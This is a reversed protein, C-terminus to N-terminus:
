ISAINGTRTLCVPSCGAAGNRQYAPVPSHFILTACSLGRKPAGDSGNLTMSIPVDPNTTTVQIVYDGLLGNVEISPFQNFSYLNTTRNMQLRLIKSEPVLAVELQDNMPGHRDGNRVSISLVHQGSRDPRRVAESRRHRRMRPSGIPAMILQELLLHQRQLWMARGPRKVEGDGGAQPMSPSFISVAAQPRLSRLPKAPDPRTLPRRIRCVSHNRERRFWRQSQLRPWLMNRQDRRARTAEGRDDVFPSSPTVGGPCLGPSQADAETEPRLSYQCVFPDEGRGGFRDVQGLKSVQSQAGKYSPRRWSVDSPCARKDLRSTILPGAISPM